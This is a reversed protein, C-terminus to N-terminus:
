KKVPVASSTRVLVGSIAHHSALTTTLMGGPPKEGTWWAWFQRWVDTVFVWGKPEHSLPVSYPAYTFKYEFFLSARGLPIEIGALVQGAFGAFQYEYTRKGTEARLGVETHPFSAGGGLGFYPRVPLLSWPLRVLGNLTLMNHGHSFELHTFVDGVKASPPLPEGNLVGSFTAVDDKVAIAKAHTFDIMTGTLAGPLWHQTRLGYYIPSKFPRGIWEFGSATFDTLGPNVIRVASPHTYSVGGYGGFKHERRVAREADPAAGPEATAAREETQADSSVISPFPSNSVWVVLAALALVVGLGDGSILRRVGAVRGLEVHAATM